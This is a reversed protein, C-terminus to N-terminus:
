YQGQVRAVLDAIRCLRFGPSDPSPTVEDKTGILFEFFAGNERAKLLWRCINIAAGGCGRLASGTVISRM